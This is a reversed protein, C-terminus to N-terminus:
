VIAFIGADLQVWDVDAVAAIPGTMKTTKLAVLFYCKKSNPFEAQM